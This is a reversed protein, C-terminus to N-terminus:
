WPADHAQIKRQKYDELVTTMRREPQPNGKIAGAIAEVWKLRGCNSTQMNASLFPANQHHHHDKGLLLM